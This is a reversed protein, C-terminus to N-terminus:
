LSPRFLAISSTYGHLFTRGHVPGIEGNCFFGGIPLQGLFERVMRSDHGPEGYLMEGRGLCSFILGGSPRSDTADDCYQQLMSRLDDASTTADRLHFQVVQGDHLQEGVALVGSDADLGILNRILFDGQWYESQGENMVVGLFLSRHLLQQDQPSLSAYLRALVVSPKCGDLELIRNGFARTVFLANGIPRCGQAVITDMELAGYLAAGVAGGSLMRDDLFLANEGPAEGGSALGGAKPATPYADDLTRVLAQADCTFPDSLLLFRPEAGAGIELHRHWRRRDQSLGEVLQPDIHFLRITVAPLVAATLSFASSREREDGGGIVGAASCGLCAASPFSEQLLAPIDRFEKAHQASVFCLVLNPSQGGLEAEVEAVAEEVAREVSTETSLFSAWKM